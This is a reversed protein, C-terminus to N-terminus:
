EITVRSYGQEDETISLTHEMFHKVDEIHTILFIQRFKSTFRSLAKIINQKRITDQSGFIEDLIIFQFISGARETIVESIALRICLNALDEEGGSFREITYASGNDYVVMNYQEDVEMEPYKGDTLQNLLESAYTSLTPRIQSILYTRFREMMTNLMTLQQLASREQEVRKKRQDFEKIEQKITGIQQQLLNQEGEKREQKLKAEELSTRIETVEKLSQQYRNYAETVSKKMQIYKQEDFSITGLAKHQDKKKKLEQREEHIDAQLQKLLSEVKEKEVQQQHLYIQKKQLAQQQKLLKAYENEQEECKKQVKEIQQALEKIHQSYKDHLVNYQEGLLRECTPCSAKPGMDEIEKKKGKIDKMAQKQQNLSAKEQEVQKMAKELLLSINKQQEENETIITTLQEFKHLMKQQKDVEREKKTIKNLLQQIDVELNKKKEFSLKKEELLDKTKVTKEYEAKHKECSTHYYTVKKEVAIIEKKMKQLTNTTETSKKHIEELREHLLEVRSTGKEDVLEGEIRDILEKKSKIDSRIDTIVDDIADIGLMKLILPRRESPNMSSLANLEKQKAFISTYFSKFDLGLKKQIFKSVAEAGTAVIKGNVTATASATLQKGMMERVIRLNDEGFVFELEVRCPDKTEAGELKIQEASTRAAVPGYLAWAVAEFITSKGVGNLGVVGTVGDPFEILADRFKRFNKLGLSKLIM